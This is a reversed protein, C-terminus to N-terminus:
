LQIAAELAEIVMLGTAIITADKGEKLIERKGFEFKYNENHFTPVSSRGMRLYFPGNIKSAEIVAARAEIDDAPCIISINPLSRMLAIDEISQHTGGDPGV